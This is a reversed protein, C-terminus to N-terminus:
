RFIDYWKGQGHWWASVKDTTKKTPKYLKYIIFALLLFVVGIIFTKTNDAKLFIYMLFAVIAGFIILGVIYRWFLKLRKPDPDAPCDFYDLIWEEIRDFITYFM